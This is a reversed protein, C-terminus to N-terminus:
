IFVVNPSSLPLDPRSLGIRRRLFSPTLDTKRLYCQLSTQRLKSRFYTSSLVRFETLNPTKTRCYFNFNFVFLYLFNPACATSFCILFFNLQNNDAESNLFFFCSLFYALLLRWSSAVDLVSYTWCCWSEWDPRPNAPNKHHTSFVIRSDYSTSPQAHHSQDNCLTFDNPFACPASISPHLKDLCIQIILMSHVFLKNVYNKMTKTFKPRRLSNRICQVAKTKENENLLSVNPIKKCSKIKSTRCNLTFYWTNQHFIHFVQM